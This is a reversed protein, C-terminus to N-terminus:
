QPLQKGLRFAYVVLQSRGEPQQYQLTTTNGFTGGMDLLLRTAWNNGDEGPAFEAEIRCLSARCSPVSTTPQFRAQSALGTEMAELLKQETQTAVQPAAADASWAAELKRAAADRDRISQAQFAAPDLPPPAPYADPMAAPRVAATAAPAPAVVPSRPSESTPSAEVGPDKGAGMAWWGVLVISLGVSAGLVIPRFNTM